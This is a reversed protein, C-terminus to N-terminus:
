QVADLPKIQGFNAMDHLNGRIMDALKNGGGLAFYPRCYASVDKNDLILSKDPHIDFADDGPHPM